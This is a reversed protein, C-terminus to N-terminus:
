LFPWLFVHKKGINRTEKSSACFEELSKCSFVVHSPLEKANLLIITRDVLVSKVTEDSCGIVHIQAANKVPNKKLKEVQWELFNVLQRVIANIKERRPKKERPFGYGCDCILINRSQHEDDDLVNLNSFLDSVSMEADDQIM